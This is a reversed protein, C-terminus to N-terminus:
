LPLDVCEPKAEGHRRSQYFHFRDSFFSCGILALACGVGLGLFSLSATGKAWGYVDQFQESLCTFILSFVGNAVGLYLSLLLTIPSHSLTQLPRKLQARM